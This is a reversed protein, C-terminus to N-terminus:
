RTSYSGPVFRRRSRRNRTSSRALFMLVHHGPRDDAWTACTFVLRPWFGPYAMTFLILPLVVLPLFIATWPLSLHVAAHFALLVLSSVCAHFLGAGMAVWPLIELPFVVRKVFNVNALVLGPARNVCDAFLAHVIM